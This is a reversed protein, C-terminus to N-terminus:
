DSIQAQRQLLQQLASDPIEVDARVLPQDKKLARLLRPSAGGESELEAITVAQRQAASETTEVLGYLHDGGISHDIVTGAALDTKAFAFVDNLKAPPPALLPAKFLCAEAIAWPTELHCLHYPRYFLYYPPDGLKYYELYPIQHPNDCHGVVYVGGGPEAGLIYDIRGQEGYADFDFLSMAERVDKCAPGEMGPIYPTLDLANAIIAMEINLKTGDTYACCQIPSLNRKAAEEALGGATQYRDLFGKINGAQVIRFGWMQIEEIMRALVGHQDGADSTVVVENRTAEHALLQGLALDVEANMLVIHAKKKIAALCYRAAPAISNTCEVLADLELSNDSELLAAADNLTYCEDANRSPLNAPDVVAVGRRQAAELTLSIAADALDSIFVLEMGPTQAVQLAVGRGMAGCGVVGVKLRRGSSELARLHKLM